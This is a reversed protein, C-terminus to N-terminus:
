FTQPMGSLSPHNRDDLIKATGAAAAVGILLGSATGLLIGGWRWFGSRAPAKQATPQPTAPGVAAAGPVAQGQSPTSEGHPFVNVEIRTNNTNNNASNNSNYDVDSVTSAARREPSSPLASKGNGTSKRSASIAALEGVLSDLESLYESTKLQIRADGPAFRRAALYHERARDLNGMRQHIRGISIQLAPDPSFESARYYASLAGKLDGQEYLVQAKAEHERCLTFQHCEAGQVRGPLMASLVFLMIIWVWQGNNWSGLRCM